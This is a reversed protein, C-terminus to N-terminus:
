MSGPGVACPTMPSDGAPAISERGGHCEYCREGGYKREAQQAQCNRQRRLKPPLCARAQSFAVIDFFAASCWLAARWWPSAGLVVLASLVLFRCVMGMYRPCMHDMRSTVSFLGHLGVLFFV